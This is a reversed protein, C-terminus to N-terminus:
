MVLNWTERRQFAEKVFDVFARVKNSLHRSRPYLMFIDLHDGSYEPLVRQLTGDQLEAAVMFTPLMVIGQDKLAAEKLVQGNNSWMVCNVRTSVPGEPGTLQWILGSQQLGYHLCRLSKLDDPSTMTTSKAFRPTACLVRETQGIEESVLSTAHEMEGIRVTVDYGEEILDVFRDNLTVELHIDPHQRVFNGILPAMYTVGFTMPLNVRLNGRLGGQLETLEGVANDLDALIAQARDFFLLGAETPTVSRTSRRLLQTDLHTELQQVQKNVVARSLGMVRAAAAFGGAEVVTEFARLSKILDM